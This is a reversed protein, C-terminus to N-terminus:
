LDPGWKDEVFVGRTRLMPWDVIRAAPISGHPPIRSLVQGLTKLGWRVGNESKAVLEAGGPRIQLEYAEDLAHEPVEAPAFDPEVSISVEYDIPGLEAAIMEAYDAGGQEGGGPTELRAPRQVAHGYLEIHQPEPIIQPFRRAADASAARLDHRSM